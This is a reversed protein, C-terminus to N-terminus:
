AWSKARETTSSRSSSRTLLSEGAGASDTGIARYIAAIM